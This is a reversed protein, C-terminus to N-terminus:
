LVLLLCLVKVRVTDSFVWFTPVDQIVAKSHRLIEDDTNVSNDARFAMAYQDVITRVICDFQEWTQQWQDLQEATGFELTTSASIVMLSFICNQIPPTRVSRYDLLRAALSHELAGTGSQERAEKERIQLM